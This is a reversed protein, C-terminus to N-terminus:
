KRVRPATLANWVCCPIVGAAPYKPGIVIAAAFLIASAVTLADFLSAIVSVPVLVGGM